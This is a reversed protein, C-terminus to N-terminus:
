RLNLIDALSGQVDGGDRGSFSMFLLTRADSDHTRITVGEELLYHICCGATLEAVEDGFDFTLTGDIVYVTEWAGPAHLVSEHTTGALFVVEYVDIAAARMRHILRGSTAESGIIGGEGARLLQPTRAAILDAPSVGLADGLEGLTQVTPNGTGSELASLTAKAIQSRRALESLSMNRENRIRRLNRGVRVGITM